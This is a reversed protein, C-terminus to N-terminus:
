DRAPICDLGKATLVACLQRGDPAVVRLRYYRGKGPLDAAVIHPLFGALAGDAAKQVHNWGAAAEDEQRWAGLQVQQGVPNDLAPRLGPEGDRDSYAAPKVTPQSEGEKRPPAKAPPLHLAIGTDEAIASKPPRLTIFGPTPPTGGLATLRQAALSYGPNATLARGYFNRAEEAKGESEAIEGLGYYPYEPAPNDSALSALYDRRAEEFRNQRRFANARNNLATPSNPILRLVAGYDGIADNLRNLSDLVLGRELFARAQEPVTLGRANIAETFDTLAANSNGQMQNALGRDLVLRSHDAESLGALGLAADSLAVAQAGNGSSLTAAIQSLAAGADPASLASGAWLTLSLVALLLMAACVPTQKGMGKDVRSM